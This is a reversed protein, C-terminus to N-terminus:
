LPIRSNEKITRTWFFTPFRQSFLRPSLYFLILAAVGKWILKLQMKLAAMKMDEIEKWWGISNPAVLKSIYANFTYFILNSFNNITSLTFNKFYRLFHLELIKFKDEVWLM